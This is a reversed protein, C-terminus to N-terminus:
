WMGRVPEDTEEPQTQDTTDPQSEYTESGDETQTDTSPQSEYTGSPQTNYSGGSPQSETGTSPQSEYTDTSGPTQTGSDSPSEYTDTSGPTQTGSDSPSEMTGSSGPTQTETQSQYTGTQSSSDSSNTMMEANMSDVSGIIENNAVLVEAGAVIGTDAALDQSIDLTQIDGNELEIEAVSNNVSRITGREAAGIIANDSVLVYSGESLNWQSLTNPSTEIDQSVGDKMMVTVTSGSIDSIQGVKTERQGMSERQEMSDQPQLRQALYEASAPAIAVASMLVGLATGTLIKLNRNIM